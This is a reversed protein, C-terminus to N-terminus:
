GSVTAFLMRGVSTQANGTIRVEVEQGVLTAADGVVVMTGDDLFGVGQGPEKGERSIPLRVTEGPVLVPRLGDALRHLNLCRLGQLEAVRQLNGDVTLLGVDLRRALAVLKADVEDHEVVEDDLVHVDFGPMNQLAGLVELGRQGRRRRLSEQADAITQIEDLVFPPVLLVSPLFGARAVTLLRGDLVASTDLLAVDSGKGYPTAQVLPRSTLGALALLEEVRRTGMGYGEYIGIWVLLGWLPWGWNNPVLVIAPVGILASVLGFVAGGVAGALLTAAPKRTLRREVHGMVQHILRGLVGGAVYGTCAGLTAGIVAGNGAEAAGGKGLAFGAATAMLVIFIRTVEVFM